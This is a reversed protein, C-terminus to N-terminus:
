YSIFYKFKSSQFSIFDELQVKVSAESPLKSRTETIFQEAINSNWTSGIVLKIRIEVESEQIIQFQRIADGNQSNMKIVVYHFLIPNAIWDGIRIYEQSRGGKIDLIQKGCSCKKESFRVIDGLYYRILPWTENYLDTVVLEGTGDPSVNVIECYFRKDLIHMNGYKCSMALCWVERSGYHNFVKTNFVEEILQKQYDHLIEGSTEMYQLDFDTKPDYGMKKIFSAFVFLASPVSFFWKPKYEIIKRYYIELVKDSMDFMSLYLVGERENILEASFDDEAFAYFMTYKDKKEIGGNKKRLEWLDKAKIFREKIGKYCKLPYGTSGSTYELLKNSTTKTLLQDEIGIFDKKYLIPIDKKFKEETLNVENILRLRREYLPSKKAIMILNVIKTRQEEWQM